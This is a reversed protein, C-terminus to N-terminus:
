RGDEQGYPDATRVTVTVQGDEDLADGRAPLDPFTDGALAVLQGVELGDLEDSLLWLTMPNQGWHRTWDVPVRRLGTYERDCDRLEECRACPVGDMHTNLCYPTACDREALARMTRAYQGCSDCYNRGTWLQKTMSGHRWPPFDDDTM